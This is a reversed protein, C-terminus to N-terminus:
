NTQSSFVIQWLAVRCIISVMLMFFLFFALFWFFFFKMYFFFLINSLFYFPIIATNNLVNYSKMYDDISSPLSHNLFVFFTLFVSFFWHIVIKLVCFFSKHDEFSGYSWLHIFCILFLVHRPVLLSSLQLIFVCCNQPACIDWM